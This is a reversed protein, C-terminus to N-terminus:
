ALGTADDPMGSGDRDRAGGLDAGSTEKPKAVGSLRDLSISVPSRTVAERGAKAASL